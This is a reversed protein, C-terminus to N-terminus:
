ENDTETSFIRLIGNADKRLLHPSSLILRNAEKIAQKVLEGEAIHSSRRVIQGATDM